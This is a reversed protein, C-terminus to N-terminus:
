TYVDSEPIIQYLISPHKIRINKSNTKWIKYIRDYRASTFYVLYETDNKRLYGTIRKGTYKKFKTVIEDITFNSKIQWIVHVHDKMIVFSFINVISNNVLYRISSLVIDNTEDFDLFVSIKKNVSFTSIYINLQKILM